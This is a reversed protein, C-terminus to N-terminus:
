KPVDGCGAPVGLSFPFGDGHRGFEFLPLHSLGYASWASTFPQPGFLWSLALASTLPPFIFPKTSWAVLACRPHESGVFGAHAFVFVGSTIPYWGRPSM